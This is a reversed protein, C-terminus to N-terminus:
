TTIVIGNGNTSVYVYVYNYMYIYVYMKKKVYGCSIGLSIGTIDGCKSGFFDVMKTNEGPQTPPQRPERKPAPSSPPSYTTIM